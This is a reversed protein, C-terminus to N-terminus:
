PSSASTTTRSPRTTRCSRCAYGPASAGTTASPSSQQNDLMARLLPTPENGSWLGAGGGHLGDVFADEMSELLHPHDTARLLDGIAPVAAWGLLHPGAAFRGRGDLAAVVRATGDAAPTLLLRVVAPAPDAGSAELLSYFVTQPGGDSCEWTEVLTAEALRVVAEDRAHCLLRAASRTQRRVISAALRAPRGEGDTAM